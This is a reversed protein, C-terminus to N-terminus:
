RKSTRLDQVQRELLIAAIQGPGISAGEHKLAKALANLAQWTRKRFPIQRRLNWNIDSPRGGTSHLREEVENCLQLWSLPGGADSGVAFTRNAGLKKTIDGMTFKSM